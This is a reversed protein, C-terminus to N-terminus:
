INHAAAVPAEDGPDPTPRQRALGIFIALLVKVMYYVSKGSGISSRGTGRRRMSVPVEAMRFRHFHLLVVAEVV